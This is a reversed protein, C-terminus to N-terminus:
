DVVGVWATSELMKWGVYKSNPHKKRRWKLGLVVVVVLGVGMLAFDLVMDTHSDTATHTTTTHQQQWM